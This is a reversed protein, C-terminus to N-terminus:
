GICKVSSYGGGVISPKILTDYILQLAAECCNIPVADYEDGYYYKIIERIKDVLSSLSIPRDAEENLTKLINKRL